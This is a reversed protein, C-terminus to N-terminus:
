WATTDMMRVFERFGNVAAFKNGIDLQKQTLESGLQKNEKKAESLTLSSCKGETYSNNLLRVRALFVQSAAVERVFAEPVVYTKHSFPMTVGHGVPISEHETIADNSSFSYTKGDVKVSLSEGSGINDISKTGAMLLVTGAKSKATDQYLAFMVAGTCNMNNVRIHKTGDFSSTGSSAVNYMSRMTTETDPFVACGAGVILLLSAPILRAMHLEFGKHEQPM